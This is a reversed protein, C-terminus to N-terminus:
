RVAVRDRDPVRQDPRRDVLRGGARAAGPGGPARPRGRRRPSGSRRAQCRAAATSPGSSATDGVGRRPRRGRRAVRRTRRPPPRTRAPRPASQRRLVSAAARSNAAARLAHAAPCAAWARAPRRRLGRSGAVSLRVANSRASMSRSRPRMSTLTPDAPSAWRIKVWAARVTASRVVRNAGQLHGGGRRDQVRRRRRCRLRGRRGTSPVSASRQPESSVGCRASGRSSSRLRVRAPRRVPRPLQRVSQRARSSGPGLEVEVAVHQAVEAVGRQVEPVVLAGREESAMSELGAVVPAPYARGHVRQLPQREGVARRALPRRQARRPPPARGPGCHRGARGSRRGAPTASAARRGAPCRGVVVAAQGLELRHGRGVPQAIRASGTWSRVRHALACAARRPAVGRRASCWRLGICSGASVRIAATSRMSAATRAPRGVGASAHTASSAREGGAGAPRPRQPQRTWARASVRAGPDLAASSTRRAKAWARRRRRGYSRARM